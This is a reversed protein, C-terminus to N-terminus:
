SLAGNSRRDCQKLSALNVREIGVIRAPAGSLLIVVDAKPLTRGLAMVTWVIRPSLRYRRPDVAQDYWGREIVRIPRRPTPVYSGASAALTYFYDRTLKVLSLAMNRPPRAHPPRPQSSREALTRFGFSPRYHERRVPSGDAALESALGAAATSKGSGDPGVLLIKISRRPERGQRLPREKHSLTGM